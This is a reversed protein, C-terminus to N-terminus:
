FVFAYTVNVKDMSSSGHFNMFKLPLAEFDDVLQNFLPDAAIKVNGAPSFQQLMKQMLRVNKIEFSGWLTPVGQLQLTAHFCRSLNM